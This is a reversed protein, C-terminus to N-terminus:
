EGDGEVEILEHARGEGNIELRYVQHHDQRLRCAQDFTIGLVQRMLARNIMNHAIIGITRSQAEALLIDIFPRVRREADRYSEGGPPRFTQLEKQRQQMQPAYESRLEDWTRGEWRGWSCERLERRPQPAIGAMEGIIAATKMARGLDSAYLADFSVEALRRGIEESLRLGEGTM